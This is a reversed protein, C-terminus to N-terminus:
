WSKQKAQLSSQETDSINRKSSLEPNVQLLAATLYLMVFTFSLSTHGGQLLHITYLFM